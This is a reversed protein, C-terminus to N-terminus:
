DDYDLNENFVKLFRNLKEQVVDESRNWASGMKAKGIDTVIRAYKKATIDIFTNSITNHIFAPIVKGVVTKIAWNILFQKM